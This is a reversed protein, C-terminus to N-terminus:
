VWIKRVKSDISDQTLGIYRSTMAETSHNFVDKIEALTMGQEYANYGWTKRLTHTGFQDINFEDAAKRLIKYAQERGIPKQLGHKDKQRSPFLYEDDAKGEIYKKLEKQLKNNIAMLKQKGTKKERLLIHTRGRVDRVRRPLIDSIRLGINVGFVFLMYDRDSRIRYYQKVESILLPDRIPQVFNM